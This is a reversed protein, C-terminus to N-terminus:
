PEGELLQVLSSSSGRKSEREGPKVLGRTSSMESDSPHRGRKRGGLLSSAWVREAMGACLARCSRDASVAQVFSVNLGLSPPLVERTAKGM